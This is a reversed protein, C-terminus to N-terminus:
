RELLTSFVFLSILRIALGKLATKIDRFYIYILTPGSIVSLVFLLMLKEMDDGYELVDGFWLTYIPLSLFPVVPLFIKLVTKELDLHKNYHPNNKCRRGITWYDYATHVVIFILLATAIIEKVEM